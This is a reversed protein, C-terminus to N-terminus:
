TATTDVQLVYYFYISSSEVQLVYKLYNSDVDLRSGFGHCNLKMISDWVIFTIQLWHSNASDPMTQGIYHWNKMITAMWLIEILWLM